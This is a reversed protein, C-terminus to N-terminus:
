LFSACPGSFNQLDISTSGVIDSQHSQSSLTSDRRLGPIALRGRAAKRTVAHDSNKPERREGSVEFLRHISVTTGVARAVPARRALKGDRSFALKAGVPEAVRRTTVEFSGSIECISSLAEGRFGFSRVAELEDFTELKSTHYKLAINAYDDPAVGGGNDSVEILAAGCDKLRVEVHTAGADLANEVLEKTATAIDVVVQGSCIKAVSRKDMAKIDGPADDAPEM